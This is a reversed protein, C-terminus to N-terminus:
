NKSIMQRVSVEEEDTMSIKKTKTKAYRIIAYYKKRILLMSNLNKKAKEVSDKDYYNGISNQQEMTIIDDKLEEIDKNLKSLINQSDFIIRDYMNKAKYNM